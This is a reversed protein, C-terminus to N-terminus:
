LRSKAVLVVLVVRDLTYDYADVVHIAPSPNFLSSVMVTIISISLGRTTSCLLVFSFIFLCVALSHRAAFLFLKRKEEDAKSSLLM